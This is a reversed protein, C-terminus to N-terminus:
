DADEADTCVSLLRGEVCGAIYDDLVWAGVTLVPLAVRVEDLSANFLENLAGTITRSM